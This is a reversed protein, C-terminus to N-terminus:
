RQHVATDQEKGGKWKEASRVNSVEQKSTNSELFQRMQILSQSTM